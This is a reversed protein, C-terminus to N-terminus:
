LTAFRAQQHNKVAEFVTDVNDAFLFETSIGLIKLKILLEQKISAPIILRRIISEDDKSMKALDGIVFRKGNEDPDTIADPFLIFMGQQNKQRVSSEPAGVLFPRAILDCFRDIQAKDMKEWGPYQLTIAYDQKVGRYYYNEVSTFANGTLRYTDAVINAASNIIPTPIGSFVVVEGDDNPHTKSIQCAFYLAVLANTTVDMMRTPIGFHQLKALKTIPLDDNNYIDPFKQQAESILDKEVFSLTNFWQESPRRDLSPELKYHSSSLGRFVIKINNNNYVLSDENGGARLNVILGIYQELSQISEIKAAM